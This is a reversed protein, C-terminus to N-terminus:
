SSESARQEQGGAVRVRNARGVEMARGAARALLGLKDALQEEAGAQPAGIAMVMREIAPRLVIVVAQRGDEM